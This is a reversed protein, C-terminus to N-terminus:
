GVVTQTEYCPTVEIENWNKEGGSPDGARLKIIELPHGNPGGLISVLQERLAEAASPTLWIDQM